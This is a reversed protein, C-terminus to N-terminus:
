PYRHGVWALPNTPVGDIRMEWHLHPGTSLGTTGVLGIVQGRTVREGVHVLIKSQHFYLSFVGAGHDIAVVNGSIPLEEAIAVVGDNVAHIPAGAEAALDLGTHYSVPGGVAYRRASGFGASKVAKMPMEFPGQWDPTPGTTGFADDFARQEIAANETTAQALVSPKLHIFEVPQKPEAVEISRTAVHQLGFEDAVTVKLTYAGPPTGLPVPAIAEAGVQGEPLGGAQRIVRAPAGDFTVTVGTVAASDQPWAIAVGLPDGGHVQGLSTVQPTPAPVGDIVAQEDTSNGAGDTAKIDVPVQGAVATLMLKWDQTVKSEGFAGYRVQYTVPEDATILLEASTGAEVRGPAQIYLQPPTTDRRAESVALGALAASLVVLLIVAPRRYRRM